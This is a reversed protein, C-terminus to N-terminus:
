PAAPSPPAVLPALQLQVGDRVPTAVLAERDSAAIVRRPGGLVAIYRLAGDPGVVHYSQVTDSVARSRELWVNGQADAFAATFAAKIPAFPLQEATGRLEPPFKEVFRERDERTVELVRDPLPQGKAAGGGPPVRDVRNHYVRALWLTGDARVGWRDTGSFVRQEFREGSPSAVKALDLPALRAVTDVAGSPTVRVVSASDRNGSGDPGAPPRLELYFNGAADRARPLAGRLADFAPVARGFRGDLSWLTLRRNVWDTAHLTDAALFLALPYRLEGTGAGLTSLTDREFDALRIEPGGPALVAWRAGGLWAADTAEAFPVLLSDGAPALAVQPAPPAKPGCALALLLVPVLLPHLRMPPLDLSQRSPPQAMLDGAHDTRPGAVMEANRADFEKFARHSSVILGVKLVAARRAMWSSVPRNM